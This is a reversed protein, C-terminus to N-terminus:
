QPSHICFRSFLNNRCGEGGGRRKSTNVFYHCVHCFVEYVDLVADPPRSILENMYSKAASLRETKSRCVYHGIYRLTEM